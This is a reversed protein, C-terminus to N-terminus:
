TQSAPWGDLDTKKTKPMHAAWTAWFIGIGLFLALLFPCALWDQSLGVQFLAGMSVECALFSLIEGVALVGFMSGAKHSGDMYAVLLARSLTPLGSGLACVVIGLIVLIESRIMMLMMPGFMLITASAKAFLRDRRTADVRACFYAATPLILLLTVLSVLSSLSLLLASRSLPWSFQIPMVRLIINSTTSALPMALVAAPLLVFRRTSFLSKVTHWTSTPEKQELLAKAMRFKKSPLTEPTFLTLALGGILICGLSIWLPMWISLELLRGAIIPALVQSM